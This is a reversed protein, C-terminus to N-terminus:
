SIHCRHCNIPSSRDATHTSTRHVVVVAVVPVAALTALHRDSNTVVVWAKAVVVVRATPRPAALDERSVEMALRNAAAMAVKNVAVMAVLRATEM